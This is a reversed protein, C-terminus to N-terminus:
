SSGGLRMPEYLYRYGQRRRELERARQEPTVTPTSAPLESRLDALKVVKAKPAPLTRAHYNRM